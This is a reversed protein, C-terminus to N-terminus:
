AAAVERLVAAIEQRDSESAEAYSAALRVVADATRVQRHDVQQALEFDPYNVSLWGAVDSWSWVRGASTDLLPGPFGGPGRSGEALLRVSEYTRGLRQAIERLTVADDRELRIAQLGPVSAVQRAASWAAEVLSSADRDVHLLDGEIVADDLGASYLHDLEQDTPSRSLRL